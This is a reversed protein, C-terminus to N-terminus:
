SQEQRYAPRPFIVKVPQRYVAHSILLEGKGLRTVANRIDQDFSQNGEIGTALYYTRLSGDIFYRYLHIQPRYLPPTPRYLDRLDPTPTELFETVERSEANVLMDELEDVDPALLEEVAGGAAPLVDLNDSLLTIVPQLFSLPPM